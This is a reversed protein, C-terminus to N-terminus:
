PPLAQPVIRIRRVEHEHEILVDLMRLRREANLVVYVLNDTAGPVVKSNLTRESVTSPLHPVVGILLPNGSRYWAEPGSGGGVNLQPQLKLSAIPLWMKDRDCGISVNNRYVHSEVRLWDLSGAPVKPYVNLQVSVASRVWIRHPHVVQRETVPLRASHLPFCPLTM